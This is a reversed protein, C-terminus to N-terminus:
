VWVLALQLDAVNTGTGGIKILDDSLCLANYADNDALLAEPDGGATRMRNLTGTDVVAGAADTPGDRGDTGASLFTWNAKLQQREAELAFALAFEQNRGGKGQGSLTVTTEGGATVAVPGKELERGLTKIHSVLKAAENRAEGTLAHSYRHLNVGEGSIAGEMAKLSLANSGVLINRAAKDEVGGLKPTERVLGQYGKRIHDRVADPLKKWIGYDKLIARCVSFRTPDPVTPGSAISSLDDGIVDSLILGRVSAPLAKRVLQGGKIASLHKRVANVQSIGAGSALLLGTAEIKEELSIGDAPLPLLASGGGSVLVLVLDQRTAQDLMAVIERAAAMGREDPLPHGSAFVRCGEVERANEDNTVVIPQAALYAAPIRALAGETMACAAKGFAVVYIHKWHRRGRAVVLGDKKVTLAGQVAVTPDAAKVATLFVDEVLKRAQSFDVLDTVAMGKGGSHTKGSQDPLWM